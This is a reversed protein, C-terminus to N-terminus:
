WHWVRDYRDLLAPLEAAALTTIGDILAGRAIGRVALDDDVVYVPVSQGILAGLDVAPQPPQTQTVGGIAIGGADQDAVAYNVASGRLLVGLEAGANRMARTLWLVPDDQEEVNARYASEVIQLAKM